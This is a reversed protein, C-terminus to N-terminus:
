GLKDMVKHVMEKVEVILGKADHASNAAVQVADTAMRLTQIQTTHCREQMTANHVNNEQVSRTFERSVETHQRLLILLAGLGVVCLVTIGVWTIWTFPEARAADPTGAMVEKVVEAVQEVAADSLAAFIM